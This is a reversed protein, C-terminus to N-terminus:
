VHIAAAIGDSHRQPEEPFTTAEGNKVRHASWAAACADLVDDTGIGHPATTPAYVGGTALVARREASGDGTRRRSALPAGAMTAFAAEPHTEVVVAPLDQRVWADLEQIRRRLEWAESSVGSGGGARNFANAESHSIAYVADRVPTTLVTSGQEGLFRRAQVDADRRGQDPLGLPVTVAVVAVQGAQDLLEQLSPALLLHPTGHGTPDLLAGLWGSRTADVGLVSRSRDLAPRRGPKGTPQQLGKLHDDVAAKPRAGAGAGKSGGKARAGRTTSTGVKGTRDGKASGKDKGTVRRWWQTLGM